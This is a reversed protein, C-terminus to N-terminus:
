RAAKDGRGLGSIIYGIAVLLLLIAFGLAVRQLPSGKELGAMGIVLLATGLPVLTVGITTRKKARSSPESM